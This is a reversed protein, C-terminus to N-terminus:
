SSAQTKLVADENEEPRLSHLFSYILGVMALVSLTGHSADQTPLPNDRNGASRVLIEFATRGSERIAYFAFEEDQTLRRVVEEILRFIPRDFGKGTRRWSGQKLFELCLYSLLEQIVSEYPEQSLFHRAGSGALPEAGTASSGVTHVSRNIFRSDPIALIPIKGVRDAFYATDRTITEVRGNRVIDVMLLPSSGQVESSEGEADKGSPHLACHLRRETLCSRIMSLHM